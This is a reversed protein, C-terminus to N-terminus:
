FDRSRLTERLNAAKAEDFRGEARALVDGRRNVVVAVVQDTGRLGASRVFSDRNTFVPLLNAREAEDTYRGMLRAQVEDRGQETGPDNLVPIRMWAISTDNRLNLGEIWGDAHEKQTRKFTILALTRDSPLDQPVTMPRKSLTKAMFAPIQGMVSSETPSVFALAVALMAALLWAGTYSVTNKKMVREGITRSLVGLVIFTAELGGIEGTSCVLIPGARYLTMQFLGHNSNPLAGPPRGLFFVRRRWLLRHVSIKDLITVHDLESGARQQMGPNGHGM